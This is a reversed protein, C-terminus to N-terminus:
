ITDCMKVYQNLMDVSNERRNFSWNDHLTALLPYTLNLLEIHVSYDSDDAAEPMKIAEGVNESLAVVNRVESMDHAAIEASFTIADGAASNKTLGDVDIHKVLYNLTEDRGVQQQTAWMSLSGNMKPKHDTLVSRAYVGFDTWQDGTFRKWLTKPVGIIRTGEPILGMRVLTSRTSAHSLQTDCVDGREMKIYFGGTDYEEPSLTIKRDFSYGTYERAQVPVYDGRERLPRDPAALDHALVVEAGEMRTLFSSMLPSTTPSSYFRIWLVKNYQGEAYLKIREGIRNLSVSLDEIVILVDATPNIDSIRSRSQWNSSFRVVKNRLKKSEVWCTDLGTLNFTVSASVKEGHWRALKTVDNRVASPLNGSQQDRAFEATANWLTPAAAYKDIFTQALEARAVKIATVISDTTPEYRGYSLAERSAAIELTGMPFEFIFQHELFRRDDHDIADSLASASIPYLVPGMKAYSGRNFGEPIESLLKWGTGEVLPNITSWGNFEDDANSIIPAVDFGLAVRYAARRFKKIDDQHVPFSVEVGTEDTTDERGMVHIGPTGDTGIIASYFTRVGDTVTVINFTDNYAFPSKSGIGFKGVVDNSNEKTSKGLATYLHMVDDHSLSIGFDRVKFTPVLLNPMTVEFPRDACGAEVHADLANCWIERTVSGIKDEYLGSILLHFIKNSDSITFAASEGANTTVDRLATATKM